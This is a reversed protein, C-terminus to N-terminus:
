VGLLGCEDKDIQLIGCHAHVSGRIRDRLDGCVGFLKGFGEAGGASRNDIHVDIVVAEQLRGGVLREVHAVFWYGGNRRLDSGGGTELWAVKQDGLAVPAGEGAGVQLLLELGTANVGNDEGTDGCVVADLGGCALASAEAKGKHEDFVSACADVGFLMTKREFLDERSQGANAGGFLHDCCKDLTGRSGSRSSGSTQFIVDTATIPGKRESSSTTLM